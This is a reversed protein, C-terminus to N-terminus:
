TGTTERLLNDINCMVETSLMNPYIKYLKLTQNDPTTVEKVSFVGYNFFRDGAPITIRTDTLIENFQGKVNNTYNIEYEDREFDKLYSLINETNSDKVEFRRGPMYTRSQIYFEDLSKIVNVLSNPNAFADSWTVATEVGSDYVWGENELIEDRNTAHVFPADSGWNHQNVSGDEEMIKYKKSAYRIGLGSAYEGWRPEYTGPSIRLVINNNNEIILDSFSVGDRPSGAVNKYGDYYGYDGYSGYFGLIEEPSFPKYVYGGIAVAVQYLIGTEPDMLLLPYSYSVFSFYGYKYGPSGNLYGTIYKEYYGFPYNRFFYASSFSAIYEPLLDRRTGRTGDQSFGNEGYHPFYYYRVQSNTTVPNNGFYLYTKVGGTSNQFYVDIASDSTVNCDLKRKVVEDNESNKFYTDITYRSYLKNKKLTGTTKASKNFVPTGTWITSYTNNITSSTLIVDNGNNSPNCTMQVLAYGFPHKIKYKMFTGLTSIYSLFNSYDMYRLWDPIGADDGVTDTLGKWELLDVNLEYPKNLVPYYLLPKVIGNLIFSQSNDGGFPAINSENTDIDIFLCPYGVKLYNKWVNSNSQIKVVGNVIKVDPVATHWYANNNVNQSTIYFYNTEVGEPATGGAM